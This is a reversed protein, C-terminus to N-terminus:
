IPQRFHHHWKISNDFLLNRCYIKCEDFMFSRTIIDNVDAEQLCKLQDKSDPGCGIASALQEHYKAM